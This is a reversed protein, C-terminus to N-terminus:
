FDVTSPIEEGTLANFLEEVTLVNAPVGYEALRLALQIAPPPELFTSDLVETHSFVDRTPADLLIKSKGMVVTRQTYRAILSMDHSIMIITAGLRNLRIALDSLQYRGAFDQGTTPEDFILISPHMAFISAVALKRRDGLSLKFPYTERYAEMGTLNLVEDVREKIEAESLGLNRLGFEIEERSSMQFLQNDPNQLILGALKAIELADLGAVEQNNIRIRGATPKLLGTICKMLTTKGAGNQGIIGMVEGRRVELSVDSLALPAGESYRFSVNEVDLIIDASREEIVEPVSRGLGTKFSDTPRLVGAKVYGAIAKRAEDLTINAETPGELRKGDHNLRMWLQYDLEAVDPVHVLAKRLRPVQCFVKRPTDELILNGEELVVIRDAFYSIQDCKHTAVIITMGVDENLDRLTSFVESTGIPDLQSTPEDLVLIEPRIVLNAAIALRQKQGGSLKASFGSIYDKLRVVDLAWEIQKKMEERPIGRNEAAFAVESLVDASFLQAEPDQLVMGVNQATEYVHHDCPEQGLVLIRGGMRGGLVVPLVGNIHLCFTTKGAGNAGVIAVYEGRRIDLTIGKLAKEESASYSFTLDRVEVIAEDL